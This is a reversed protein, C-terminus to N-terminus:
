PNPIQPHSIVLLLGNVGGESESLCHRRFLILMTPALRPGFRRFEFALPKLWPQWTKQLPPKGGRGVVLLNTPASPAEKTPGPHAGALLFKQHM